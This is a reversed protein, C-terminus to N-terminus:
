YLLICYKCWVFIIIMQTAYLTGRFLFSRFCERAFAINERMQCFNQFSNAIIKNEEIM